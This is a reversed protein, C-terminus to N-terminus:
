RKDQTSGTELKKEQEEIKWNLSIGLAGVAMTMAVFFVVVRPGIKTRVKRRGVLRVIAIRPHKKSAM